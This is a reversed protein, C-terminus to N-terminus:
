RYEPQELRGALDMKLRVFPRFEISQSGASKALSVSFIAAVLKGRNSVISCTLCLRGCSSARIPKQPVGQVSAQVYSRPLLESVLRRGTKQGIPVTIQKLVEDAPQHLGRDIIEGPLDFSTDLSHLNEVSPRTYQREGLELLSCRAGTSAITAPKRSRWM